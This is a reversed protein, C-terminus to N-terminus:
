RKRLFVQSLSYAYAPLVKRLMSVLLRDDALQQRIRHGAETWHTHFKQKFGLDSGARTSVADFRTRWEGSSTVARFEELLPEVKRDWQSITM